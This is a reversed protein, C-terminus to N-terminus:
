FVRQLSQLKEQFGLATKRAPSCNKTTEIKVKKGNKLCVIQNKKYLSM